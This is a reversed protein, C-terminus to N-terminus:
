TVRRSDRPKWPGRCGEAEQTNWATLEQAIAEPPQHEARPVLAPVKCYACGLQAQVPDLFKFAV